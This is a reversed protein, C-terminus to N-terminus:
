VHARGIKTVSFGTKKNLNKVREVVHKLVTFNMFPEGGYFIVAQPQKEPEEIKLFFTDVIKDAMEVSM